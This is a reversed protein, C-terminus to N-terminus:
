DEVCWVRRAIDCGSVSGIWPGLRLVNDDPGGDDGTYRDFVDTLSVYTGWHSATESAWANCNPQGSPAYDTSAQFWGTRIWGGFAAPPGQGADPGSQASPGHAYRLVTPDLIEFLSAMHFGALCTETAHLGTATATSLYYRRHFSKWSLSAATVFETSDLGDLVDANVDWADTGRMARELFLALQGRTVPQDPCFNTGGNGDDGCGESIGDAMMQEIWPCLPSTAEVDPFTSDCAGPDYAASAHVQGVPQAAVCVAPAALALALLVADAPLFRPTRM